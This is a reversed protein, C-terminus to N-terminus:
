QVRVSSIADNLDGPLQPTTASFAQCAGAFGADACVTVTANGTIRISSVRDNWGDPMQGLSQGSTVCFSEGGFRVDAFFCVEAAAAPQDEAPPAPEPRDAPQEPREAPQEPQEAPQEPQEAPQEPQEPQEAPQEPQEAPQEGGDNGSLLDGGPLVGDDGPLLGGDLLSDGGDEQPPPPADGAGAPTRFSSIADNLDGLQAASSSFATCGGYNVDRCVDVSAGAGVQISSIRDNFNGLSEASRGMTTCFSAGGYNADAYFCVQGPGAQEAPQEPQDQDPQDQDPQDEDPQDPEAPTRYSSITDNWDGLQAANSRYAACGGEFNADRCVDVSANAGVRISSIRDNWGGGLSDDSQGMRACFAEGGYNVDAYFCVEDAAPMRPEDEDPEDPEAPTRYSSITDNRDGLQAANSRYAVCGGEFNADRCADVSANAGVRISSIRDNWEASLSDDSQGLAACFVEGQYDVDSYFCVENASPGRPPEPQDDGAPTRYSSIADNQGSPLQAVNQRYTACGGQYGTDRCVEVSANGGVRISSFRDNWQSGLANDSTGVTVCFADGGYNFDAYFCVENQRPEIPGASGPVPTRYSSIVDNFAGPLRNTDNYFAECAGGYGNDECVQVSADRGVLISSIEDNWSPGLAPNRAGMVVCFANGEYNFDTFFCVEDAAPEIDPQTDLFVEVLPIGLQAGVEAVTQQRGTPRIYASAVWGYSANYGVECWQYSFACRYVPVNSGAPIVLVVQSDTTPRQRLNLDTTVVARGDFAPLQPPPPPAPSPGAAPPPAPAPQQETEVAGDLTMSVVVFEGNLKVDYWGDECAVDDVEFLADGEREVSAGELSCAFRDLAESVRDTEEASAQEFADGDDQQPGDSTMSVIAFEPDLKIDFQGFECIADDVEYLGSREREVPVSGIRCGARDLAIGVQSIEQDNPADQIQQAAAPSAMLILACAAPRAFRSLFSM